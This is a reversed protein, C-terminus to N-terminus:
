HPLSQGLRWEAWTMLRLGLRDYDVRLYGDDGRVVANPMFRAVQQAIVGVYVESDGKYRFRYLEVGNALQKLPVVAEKLRGDSAMLSPPPLSVGGRQANWGGPPHPNPRYYGYSSDSGRRSSHSSKKKSAVQVIDSMIKGTSVISTPGAPLARSTGATMIVAAGAAVIVACRNAIKMSSGQDSGGDV